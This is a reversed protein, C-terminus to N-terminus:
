NIQGGGLINGLMSFDKEGILREEEFIIIILQIKFIEMRWGMRRAREGEGIEMVTKAPSWEKVVVEALRRRRRGGKRRRVVFLIFLFILYFCHPSCGVQTWYFKRNWEGDYKKKIKTKREIKSQKRFHM